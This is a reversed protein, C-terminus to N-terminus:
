QRIVKQQRSAKLSFLYTGAPLDTMDVPASPEM